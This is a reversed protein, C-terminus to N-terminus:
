KSVEQMPLAWAPIYRFEVFPAVYLFKRGMLGAIITNDGRNIGSNITYETLYPEKKLPKRNFVVSIGEGQPVSIKGDIPLGQIKTRKFLLLTDVDAPSVATDGYTIRISDQMWFGSDAMAATYPKWKQSTSRQIGRKVIKYDWSTDPRFSVTEVAVDYKEAFTEPELLVLRVALWRAGPTPTSFGSEIVLAQQLADKLFNQLFYINDEYAALADEYVLDGHVTFLSDATEHERICSRVLGDVTDALAISFRVISKQLEIKSSDAAGIEKARAVSNRILVNVAKAYNGSVELMNVIANVSDLPVTEAHEFVKESYRKEMRNFYGLADYTLDEFEQPLLFLGEVAKIKSANTWKTEVSLSDSVVVNRHHAAVVVDVLPKIAKALVQSRYETKELLSLEDPIPAILLQQISERNIEALDFLVETVKNKSAALWTRTLSRLSDQSVFTEATDSSATDPEADTQSVLKELATIGSLFSKLSRRYLRTTEQNISRKKVAYETPDLPPVEQSAWTEAFHEQLLGIRYLSEPLRFNSFAIVGTYRNIVTDLIAKKRQVAAALNSEPLLFEIATLRTEALEASRFLGECAYFPYAEDGSSKLAQYVIYARIFANEARALWSRKCSLDGENYAALVVRTSNPFKESFSHYFNIAGVTDKLALMYRGRRFYVEDADAADPYQAAYLSSKEMAAVWNKDKELYLITNFLVDRAEEGRSLLSFLDEYRQAGKKYEGIQGYDIALNNLAAKMFPSDAYSVRLLEYARVASDFNGVADFEKGANFLARDAFQIKPTELAMRYFEDAAEKKQGVQSLAQAKLFISEGLRKEVQVKMSDPINQDLMRKALVEASIYDKKGFYSEMISFQVKHLEDSKPFYKVLTKFYKLAESFQNHTYYLAGANALVKPTDEEFPFLKLYNDFAMAQWSEAPSLPEATKETSDAEITVQYGLARREQQVLSDAVVIANEAADKYTSLGKERAYSDYKASNYVLSITLYEQLADKFRGLRTDLVLAVNWRVYYAQINEPFEDLYTQGLSVAESFLESDSKTEAKRIMSNFNARIAKESLVLAQERAAADDVKQWWSSSPKYQLFLKQRAFFLDDDQELIQYCTIIKQQVGPASSSFPMYELYRNYTDVAKGYEEKEYLYVDGLKELVDGGWLPSGIGELYQVAKEAGGFDLFSIAIYERAEDALNVRKRFADPDHKKVLEMEAVLTTFYSISKPYESLRYFSWGIKYLAEDYRPSNKYDLVHKYNEIAKHIDNVPPNFYYEGLRMYSEPVYPSEPFAEILHLYIQNAEKYRGMEEYLFAKNYVADDILKSGSFEDIIRQYIDLSRVFSIVPEEPIVATEGRGYALVAKDYEEMRTLYEDKEKYYYLNALRALIGDLVDKDPSTELLREGDEIGREILNMKEQQLQQLEQSYYARYSQLEPLSLYWFTSDQVTGDAQALCVGASLCIAGAVMRHIFRSLSM